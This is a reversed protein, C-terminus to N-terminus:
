RYRRRGHNRLQYRNNNKYNYKTFKLMKPAKVIVLPSTSFIQTHAINIKGWGSSILWFVTSWDSGFFSFLKFLSMLLLMENGCFWLILCREAVTSDFMWKINSRVLAAMNKNPVPTTNVCMMANAWDWPNEDDSPLVIIEANPSEARSPLIPRPISLWNGHSSVM